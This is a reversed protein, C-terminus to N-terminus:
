HKPSASRILCIVPFLPIIANQQILYAVIHLIHTIFVMVISATSIGNIPIPLTANRNTLCKRDCYDTPSSVNGMHINCKDTLISIIGM